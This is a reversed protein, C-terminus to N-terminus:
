QPMNHTDFPVLVEAPPLNDGHILRALLDMAHLAMQEVPEDLLIHEGLGHARADDIHGGLVLQGPQIDVGGEAMLKVFIAAVNISPTMYAQPRKKMALYHKAAAQAIQAFDHIDCLCALEPEHAHQAQMMAIRHGMWWQQNWGDQPRLGCFFGIRQHGLSLLANTALKGMAVKDTSVWHVPLAQGARPLIMDGMVVAPINMAAAAMLQQLDFCGFLLLGDTHNALSALTQNWSTKAQATQDAVAEDNVALTPVAMPDQSGAEAYSLEMRLGVRQGAKALAPLWQDAREGWTETLIFNIRKHKGADSGRLNQANRARSVRPRPRYNLAESADKVRKRTEQSVQPYGALAKSVAAVSLNTRKAIDKLTVHQAM